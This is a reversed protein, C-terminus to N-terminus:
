CIFSYEAVLSVVFLEATGSKQQLCFSWIKHWGFCHYNLNKDILDLLAKSSQTTKDQWPWLTKYCCHPHNRVGTKLAWPSLMDWSWGFHQLFGEADLCWSPWLLTELHVFCPNEAGPSVKTACNLPKKHRDKIIGGKYYWFVCSLSALLEGHGAAGGNRRREHPFFILLWLLFSGSSSPCRVHYHQWLLISGSRGLPVMAIGGRGM